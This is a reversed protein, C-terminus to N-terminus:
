RGAALETLAGLDDSALPVYADRGPALWLTEGHPAGLGLAEIRLSRKRTRHGATTPLDVLVRVVLPRDGPDLGAEVKQRM